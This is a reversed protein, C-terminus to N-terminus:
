RTMAISGPTVVLVPIDLRRAQAMDQTSPQPIHRPHTHMVAVTGFPIAGSWSASHWTNSAPWVACHFTGDGRLVLFAARERDSRGFAALESLQESCARVDDRRLTEGAFPYAVTPM